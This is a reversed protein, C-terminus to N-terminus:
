NILNERPFNSLLKGGVGTVVLPVEVGIEENATLARKPIVIKIVEVMILM